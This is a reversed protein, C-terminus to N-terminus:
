KKVWLHVALNLFTWETIQSSPPSNKRVVSCQVAKLCERSLPMATASLQQFLLPLLQTLIFVSLKISFNLDQTIGKCVQCIM